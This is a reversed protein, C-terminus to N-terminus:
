VNNIQDQYKSLILDHAVKTKSIVYSKFNSESTLLSLFYDHENVFEHIAKNTGFDCVQETLYDHGCIYGNQKVKKNSIELDAKCGNYSHDADIYVWDFYEDDFKDLVPVSYGRVVTVNANKNFKDTVYDFRDNHVEQTITNINEDPYTCDFNEWADILYLKIPNNVDIIKDAYIGTATGIEACVGQPLIELLKIRNFSGNNRYEDSNKLINEIDGITHGSNYYNLLGDHDAERRLINKYLNKIEDLRNMKTWGNHDMGTWWHKTYAEEFSYQLKDRNLHHVPYFYKNPFVKVNQNTNYTEFITTLAYPGTVEHAYINATAYDTDNLRELALKIYLNIIEHNATSGIIATGILTDDELGVFFELNLFEDLPKLCQMDTDVYIGGYLRLIELRLIDSKVVYSYNNNKIIALVELSIDTPINNLDRFQFQWTPHNQKFSNIFEIFKEPVLNTDPWVHHIIKPIM